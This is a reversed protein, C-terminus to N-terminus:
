LCSSFNSLPPLIAPCADKWGAARYKWLFAIRVRLIIVNLERSCVCLSSRLNLKQFEGENEMFRCCLGPAQDAVRNEDDVRKEAGGLSWGKGQFSAGSPGRWGHSTGHQGRLTSSKQYKGETGLCTHIKSSNEPLKWARLQSAVM